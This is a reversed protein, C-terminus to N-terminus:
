INRQSENKLIREAEALNKKMDELESENKSNLLGKYKKMYKNFQIKGYEKSEDKSYDAFGMIARAETLETKKGTYRSKIVVYVKKGDSVAKEKTIEFGNKYLWNRLVNERTMPQLVLTCGASFDINKELIDAITEGGMGAIVVCNIKDAYESDAIKELGDSLITPIKEEYGYEAINKKAASLPGENIDSAIVFDCKGRKILECALYGHDTGVDCVTMGKEIMDFCLELRNGLM